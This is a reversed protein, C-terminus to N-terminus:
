WADELDHVDVETSALQGILPLYVFLRSKNKARHVIGELGQFPGTHFRVKKGPPFDSSARATVNHATAILIRVNEIEQDALVAPGSETRVFHMAASNELAKKRDEWNIHLFIYGAFLPMKVFKVRDSWQRKREVLPLYHEIGLRTLFISLKQEQRPKCYLIYWKKTDSM